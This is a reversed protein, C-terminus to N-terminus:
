NWAEPRILWGRVLAYVGWIVGAMIILMIREKWSGKVFMRWLEKIPEMQKSNRALYFIGFLVMFFLSFFLGTLFDFDEGIIWMPLVYGLVGVILFMILKKM